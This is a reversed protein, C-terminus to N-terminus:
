QREAIRQNAAVPDYAGTTFVWNTGPIDEPKLCDSEMVTVVGIAHSSAASEVVLSAYAREPWQVHLNDGPELLGNDNVHLDLRYVKDCMGTGEYDKTRDPLRKMDVIRATVAKDRIKHLYPEPLSPLGAVPKKEDGQVLLFRGWSRPRPEFGENIAEVFDKMRDPPILYRREGWRVPIVQDPFGGFKDENPKNFAFHLSNDADVRISGENAGYLGLCGHWTTTVGVPSVLMRVNMGLGDGQYYDGAWAEKPSRKLDKEIAAQRDIVAQPVKQSRESPETDVARKPAADQASAIAAIAIPWSLALAGLGALVATLLAISRVRLKKPPDRM